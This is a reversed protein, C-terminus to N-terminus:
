SEGPIVQSMNQWAADFTPGTGRTHQEDLMKARPMNIGLLLTVDWAGDIREILVRFTEDTRGERDRIMNILWTESESLDM